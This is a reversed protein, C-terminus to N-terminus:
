ARAGGFGLPGSRRRLGCGVAAAAAVLLAAGAHPYSWVTFNGVKTPGVLPPTFDKVAHIPAHPDRDHGVDYLRKQLLAASVAFFILALTFGTWGALRGVRRGALLGAVFFMASLSLIAPVLYRLEPLRTPFQVGIYQQLTTIEHVDGGIARATVRLHLSEGPYQPASMRFGWLPVFAAAAALAAAAFFATRRAAGASARAGSAPAPANM